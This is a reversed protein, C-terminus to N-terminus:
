ERSLESNKVDGTLDSGFYDEVFERADDPVDAWTESPHNVSYDFLVEDDYYIFHFEEVSEGPGIGIGPPSEDTSDFHIVYDTM